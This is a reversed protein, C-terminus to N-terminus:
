LNTFLDVWKQMVVDIDFRKSSLLAEQAMKVRLEEDQMLLSLKEAFTAEDGPEVLFGDKGDAVIARPGCPCDFSVIPIGLSQTEVLVLPFGETKSTMAYIKSKLYEARIKDTVEYLYIRELDQALDGLGEPIQHGYICLSWDSYQRYLLRWINLLSEFNKEISYRGAAIIIKEENQLKHGWEPEALRELTRPNPIVVVNGEYNPADGETLVVVADAAKFHDNETKGQVSKGLKRLLAQKFALPLAPDKADDSPSTGKVAAEWYRYGHSELVLKTKASLRDRYALMAEVLVYDPAQAVIINPKLRRFLKLYGQSEKRWLLREVFLGLFKVGMARRLMNRCWNGFPHKTPDKLPIHLSNLCHIQVREDYPFFSKERPEKSIIHVEHGHQVLWNAKISTVREVGGSTSIFPICYVIKM